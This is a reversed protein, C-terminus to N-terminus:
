DHQILTLEEGYHHFYTQQLETLKQDLFPNNNRAHFAPHSSELVINGFFLHKKYKRAEKGMFYYIMGRYEDSFFTFLKQMFPEWMTLHATPDGHLCSLAVNLMLLGQQEWSELTPDFHECNECDPSLADAILKLSPPYDKYPRNSVAFALGTANPEAKYMYHYPALGVVIARVHDVPMRFAKFIDTAYPYFTGYMLKRALPQLVDDKFADCKQWSEHATSPFKTFM